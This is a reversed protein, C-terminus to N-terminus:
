HTVCSNGIQQPNWSDSGPITNGCLNVPIRIEINQQATQIRGGNRGVITKKPTQRIILTYKGSTIKRRQTLRIGGRTDTGAAYTRGNRSLITTAQRVVTPPPGAISHTVCRKAPPCLTVKFSTAVFKGRPAGFVNGLNDDVGNCPAITEYNLNIVPNIPVAVGNTVVASDGQNQKDQYGPFTLDVDKVEILQIGRTIYYDATANASLVQSTNLGKYGPPVTVQQTTTATTSVTQSQTSSIWGELSASALGILGGQLKVSLKESVSTTEGRTDSLGVATYADPGGPVSCNYLVDGLIKPPDYANTVDRLDKLRCNAIDACGTSLAQAAGTPDTQADFVQDPVDTALARVARAAAGAGSRSAAVAGSPGAAAAALVTGALGVAWLGLGM